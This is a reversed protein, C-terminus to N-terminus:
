EDASDNQKNQEAKKIQTNEFDCQRVLEKARERSLMKHPGYFNQVGVQILGSILASCAWYFTVGGPFTFGLILSILPMTLMMGAMNPADPNIKKQMVLSLASTLMQALFAIIPMIWIRQADHFLDFSFKPTQTLDMGLFSYTVSTEKDAKIVATLDNEIKQYQEDSLIEKLIGPDDRIIKILLLESGRTSAKWSIKKTIQNYAEEDSAKLDSMATSIANTVNTVQKSDANAMYTLPSLIISYISLMLVLRIVMPLCGGSMSVGEEQYLKQMAESYKQRDDGYRKKLEDLKPKIRTQQVSSKQSKINLPILVVNILLTFAFVAAAFNGGLLTSFFRMLYGFPINIINFLSQM